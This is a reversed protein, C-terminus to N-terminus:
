SVEAFAEPYRRRCEAEGAVLDGDFIQDALLKIVAARKVPDVRINEAAQRRASESVPGYATLILPALPTTARTM